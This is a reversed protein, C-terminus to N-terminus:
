NRVMKKLALLSQLLAIIVGQTQGDVDLGSYYEAIEIGTFANEPLQRFAYLLHSLRIGNDEPTAVAIVDEPTLVDLDISIGVHSCRQGLTHYASCLQSALQQQTQIQDQYIVSVGLKNLLTLEAMEYSRVGLLILNEPKLQHCPAYLANLRDDGHGLLAAVPMGHPNGTPSTEFNHADMHADLWLLGFDGPADYDIFEPWIAMASSHDGGICIFQSKKSLAQKVRVSIQKLLTKYSTHTSTFLTFTKSENHIFLRNFAPNKFLAGMDCDLKRSPIGYASSVGILALATM